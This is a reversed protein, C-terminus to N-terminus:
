NFQYSRCFKNTFDDGKPPMNPITPPQNFSKGYNGHQTGFGMGGTGGTNVMSRPGQNFDGQQNSPYNSQQYDPNRPARYNPNPNMM